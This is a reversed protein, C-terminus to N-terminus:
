PPLDRSRGAAPGGRARAEGVGPRDPGPLAGAALFYTVACTFRGRRASEGLHAPGHRQRGGVRRAGRPDPGGGGLRRDARPRHAARRAPAVRGGPRVVRVLEDLVRGPDAVHQVVRDAWAGGFRDPGFPLRHADAVVAELFSTGPVARLSERLRRKCAAHFPEASLRNLLSASVGPDAQADVSTFGHAMHEPRDADM